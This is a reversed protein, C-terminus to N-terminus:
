LLTVHVSLIADRNMTAGHGQVVLTLPQDVKQSNVHKKQIRQQLTFKCIKNIQPIGIITAIQGM